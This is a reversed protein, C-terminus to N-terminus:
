IRPESIQYSDIYIPFFSNNVLVSGLIPQIKCFKPLCTTVVVEKPLLLPTPFFETTIFKSHRVINIKPEFGVSAKRM